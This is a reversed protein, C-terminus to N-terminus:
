KIKYDSMKSFFSLLLANVSDTSLFKEKKGHSCTVALEYLCDIKLLFVLYDTLGIGCCGVIAATM